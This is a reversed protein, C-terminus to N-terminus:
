VGKVFERIEQLLGFNTLDNHHGGKLLVLKKPIGGLAAFVAKGTEVPIVEDESGHLVITPMDFYPAKSLNDYDDLVMYKFPRMWPMVSGVMDPVSTLPAELVLAKAERYELAMQSAVGTGISEGYIIINGEDIKQESMLWSLAARADSYFGNESPSGANGGYGRYGALLFGYGQACFFDQKFGRMSLNGANGHFMVFVPKGEQPACYWSTLAINDQTAYTVAAAHFQEPQGLWAASPHYLFFRQAAIIVAVAMLFGKICYLAIHQFNKM